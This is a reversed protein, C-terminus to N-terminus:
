CDGVRTAEYVEAPKGPAQFGVRVSQPSTSYATIELRGKDVAVGDESRSAPCDLIFVSNGPVPASISAKCGLRAAAQYTANIQKRVRDLPDGCAEGEVGQWKWKGDQLSPLRSVDAAAAATASGASGASGGRIQKANPCPANSYSTKGDKGVCKYIAQGHLPALWAAAALALFVRPIAL